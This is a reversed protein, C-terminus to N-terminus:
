PGAGALGTATDPPRVMRWHGPGGELNWGKNTKLHHHHPCLRCLNEFKTQGGKRVETVWHDIELPRSVHCGPVVCQEDREELAIRLARKIHRTNTCISEVMTGRTAVLELIADDLQCAVLPVPIPGGGIVESREGPGVVGRKLAALDVRIRIIPRPSKPRRTRSKENQTSEQRNTQAVDSVRSSAAQAMAVLADAMYAGQSEYRKEKRAAEFFQKEFPELGSQVVALADPTMRADLRGFGEDDTWTRCYRKSRMREFRSVADLPSEAIARADRCRKQFEAFDVKQAAKVLGTVQEPCVEAVSALQKARAESLEGKRFAEEIEPHAEIARVLALKAVSQGVSEGTLGALFTGVHKHGDLTHRNTDEVRKAFRLKGAVGLREIEAFVSVVQVAAEGPFADPENSELFRKVLDRAKELDNM